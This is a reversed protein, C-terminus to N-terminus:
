DLYEEGDIIKKKARTASLFREFLLDHKLPDLKTIGILDAVLSGGVSGRSIGMLIDNKKAFDPISKVLLIYPAFGLNIISDLEEKTRKSYKEAQEPKIKGSRLKEEFGEACLQKLYEEPSAGPTDLKPIKIYGLTPFDYRQFETFM